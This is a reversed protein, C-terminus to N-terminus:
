GKYQTQILQFYECYDGKGSMIGRYRNLGQIADDYKIYKTQTRHKQLSELKVKMVDSIDEVHGVTQIPTWVEYGLITEVQWPQPGYEPFWPGAARRCAEMVLRHTMQHDPVSDNSHPIYILSPKKTRVMAAIRSLTEPDYELGADPKRLFTLATVGLTRAAEAAEVERIRALDEPLHDLSGFEGSTMYVIAVHNGKQIHRAISGGCGIIDDDPHPSFVLVNM